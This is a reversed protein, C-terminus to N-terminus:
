DEITRAKLNGLVVFIELFGNHFKLEPLKVM